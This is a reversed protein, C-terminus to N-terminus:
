IAEATIRKLCEMLEADTRHRKMASSSYRVEALDEGITIFVVKGYTVLDRLFAAVGPAQHAEPYVPDVKAVIDEDDTLVLLVHCRDPRLETSLDNALWGCRFGACTPPRDTYIGCGKGRECHPCWAQAPKGIEVVGMVRCCETCTGCTNSVADTLADKKSDMPSRM